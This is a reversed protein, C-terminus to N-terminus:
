LTILSPCLLRSLLMSGLLLGSMLRTGKLTEFCETIEREGFVGCYLVCIRLRNDHALMILIQSNDKM